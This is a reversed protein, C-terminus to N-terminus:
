LHGLSRWANHGVPTAEARPFSGHKDDVPVLRKIYKGEGVIEDLSNAPRGRDVQFQDRAAAIQRLNNLMAKQVSSNRLSMADSAAAPAASRVPGDVRAASLRSVDATLKGVEAKLSQNDHRLSAILESHRPTEVPPPPPADFTRSFGFYAGAGFPVVSSFAAALLTHSTM